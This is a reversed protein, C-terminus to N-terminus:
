HCKSNLPNCMANPDMLFTTAVAAPADGVCNSSQRLDHRAAVAPPEVSGNSVNIARSHPKDSSTNMCFSAPESPQGYRSNPLNLTGVSARLLIEVLTANWYETRGVASSFSSSCTTVLSGNSAAIALETRKSACM